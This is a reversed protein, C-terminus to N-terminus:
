PSNGIWARPEGGYEEYSYTKKKKEVDGDKDGDGSILTM